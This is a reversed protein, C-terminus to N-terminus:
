RKSNSNVLDQEVKLSRQRGSRTRGATESTLAQDPQALDVGFIIEVLKRGFLAFIQQGHVPDVEV